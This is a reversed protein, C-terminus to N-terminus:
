IGINRLFVSTTFLRDRYSEVGYDDVEPRNSRASLSINVERINEAIPPLDVIMGNKLTYQFQLDFINDAYVQPTEGKIEVMLKPHEPETTNDIYFKVQTMALVLANVDYQRSLPMTNHQLHSSATQVKTIEFWEGFASDADYIYVWQNDNFCSIDTGAKLEASTNPMAASLYTDCGSNHYILVITDPNTDYAEIAQLGLPLEYGSMRIQRSLEDISARANQQIESIDDQVLYNEHQNVYVKLISTTVVGTIALAILVELLSLGKTDKLFKFM